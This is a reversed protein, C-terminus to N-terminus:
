NADRIPLSQILFIDFRDIWTSYFDDAVPMAKIGPIPTAEAWRTFQDIANMCFTAGQSPPLPGILDIHVHDFKTSTDSFNQLPVVTHRHVKSCQLLICQLAWVTFYKNISPWVFHNRGLKSTTRVAPHASNHISFHKIAAYVVLLERDYASYKTEAAHLKRSYFALPELGAATNQNLSGGIAYDSADVQLILSANSKPHTLM